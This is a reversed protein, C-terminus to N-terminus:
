KAEKLYEIQFELMYRCSRGDQAVAFGGQNPLLRIEQVVEGAPFAPFNGADNQEEIWRGLQEFSALQAINEPDNPEYSCPAARTLAVDYCRLSGGDIFEQVVSEAPILAVDGGDTQAFHFFLDRIHPCGLLWEWVAQHRNDEM